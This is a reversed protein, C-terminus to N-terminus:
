FTVSPFTWFFIHWQNHPWWLDNQSHHVKYSLHNVVIFIETICKTMCWFGWTTNKLRLCITWCAMRENTALVMSCDIIITKSEHTVVVIEKSKHIDLDLCSVNTRTILKMFESLHRAMHCHSKKFVSWYTQFQLPLTSWPNGTMMCNVLCILQRHSPHPHYNTWGQM